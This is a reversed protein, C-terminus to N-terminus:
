VNDNFIRMNLLRQGGVYKVNNDTDDHCYWGNRALVDCPSFSVSTEGVIPAQCTNQTVTITGIRPAECNGESNMGRSLENYNDPESLIVGYVKNATSVKHFYFSTPVYGSREVAFIYKFHVDTNALEVYVNTVIVVNELTSFYELLEFYDNAVRIGNDSFFVDTVANDPVGFTIDDIDPLINLGQKVCGFIQRQECESIIVRLRFENPFNDSIPEFVTGGEFQIKHGNLYLNKSHFIREIEDMKEPTYIDVSQLEYRVTSSVKQLRCNYSIQRIIDRPMRKICGKIYVKEKIGLTAASKSQELHTFINDEGGNDATLTFIAKGCEDLNENNLYTLDMM